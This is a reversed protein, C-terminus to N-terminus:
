KKLHCTSYFFIMHFHFKKKHVSSFLFSLEWLFLSESVSKTTFFLDERAKSKLVCNTDLNIDVSNLFDILFIFIEVLKGNKNCEFWYSSTPIHRTSPWLPITPLVIIMTSVVAPTTLLACIMPWMTKGTSRWHDEAQWAYLTVQPVKFDHLDLGM